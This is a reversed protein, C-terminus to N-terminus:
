IAVISNGYANAGPRAGGYYNPAPSSLPVYVLGLGADVPAAFAWTNAGSLPQWGGDLGPEHGPQGPQAVSSFEWLKEGTRVDVARTNGPPGSPVEGVGAGVIAVHRFITPAGGFGVGMPAAGNAGFEAVREGTAADLAILN